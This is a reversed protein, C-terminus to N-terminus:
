HAKGERTTRRKQNDSCIEEDQQRKRGLKTPWDAVLQSTLKEEGGVRCLHPPFSQSVGWGYSIFFPLFDVNSKCISGSPSFFFFLPGLPPCFHAHIEIFVYRSIISGFFFFFFFLSKLLPWGFLSTDFQVLSLGM